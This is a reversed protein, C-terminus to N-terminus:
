DDDYGEFLRDLHYGSHSQKGSLADKLFHQYMREAYEDDKSSGEKKKDKKDSKKKKGYFPLRDEDDDDDDEDDFRRKKKNKERRLDDDMLEFIQSSLGTEANMRSKVAKQYDKVSKHRFIEDACIARERADEITELEVVSTQIGQRADLYAGLSRLGAVMEDMSNVRINPMANMDVVHIQPVKKPTPDNKLWCLLDDLPRMLWNLKGYDVPERFAQTEPSAEGVRRTSRRFRGKKQSMQARFAEFDFGETRLLNMQQTPSMLKFATNRTKAIEELLNADDQSLGAYRGFGDRSYRRARAIKEDVSGTVREDFMVDAGSRSGEGGRRSAGRMFLSRVANYGVYCVGAVTAIGVAAKSVDEIIEGPSKDKFLERLKEFGSKLLGWIKKFFGM